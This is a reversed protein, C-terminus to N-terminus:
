KYLVPRQIFCGQTTKKKTKKKEQYISWSLVGQEERGCYTQTPRKMWQIPTTKDVWTAKIQYWKKAPSSCPFSGLAESECCDLIDPTTCCKLHLKEPGLHGQQQAEKLFIGRSPGQFQKKRESAVSKNPALHYAASPSTLGSNQPEIVHACVISARNKCLGKYLTPLPPLARHSTRHFELWPGSLSGLSDSGIRNTGARTGM